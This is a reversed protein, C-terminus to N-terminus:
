RKICSEQLDQPIGGVPQGIMGKCYDVVSDPFSLKKGEEIINEEDLKNKTM